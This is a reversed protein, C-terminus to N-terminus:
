DGRPVAVPIAAAILSVGRSNTTIKAKRRSQRDVARATAEKAAQVPSAQSTQGWRERSYQCCSTIWGALTPATEYAPLWDQYATSWRGGNGAVPDVGAHSARDSAVASTPVKTAQLHTSEWRCDKAMTATASAPSRILGM